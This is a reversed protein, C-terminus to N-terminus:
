KLFKLVVMTSDDLYPTEQLFDDLDDFLKDRIEAASVGSHAELSTKLRDYGYEENKSNRAETIGDTYLVIVNNKKIEREQISIIENFTQEGVIGLGIGEEESYEAKREKAGYILMPCHGARAYTLKKSKTDILLFTLTIFLNKDLCSLIANNMNVMFEKPELSLQMLAQFVGKLEAMHFAASTGKGSVDGIVVASRNEDIWFHDYYDGGVERAAKSSAAIEVNVNEPYSKPLLDQQIRRAVELEEKMRESEFRESLLGANELAVGAQKVYTRVLNIMYEDFGNKYSKLLIVSGLQDNASRIPFILLSKYIMVVNSFVAENRANHIFFYEQGSNSSSYHNLIIQNLEKVEQSTINKSKVDKITEKDVSYMWVWGAKSATNNLCTNLLIDMIEDVMIKDSVLQTLQQFSVAELQKKEMEAALPLNFILGMMSLLGYLGVFGAVLILFVNRYAYYHHFYGFEAEMLQNILLYTILNIVLLLGISILKSRMNLLIIWRQRTFLFLMGAAAIGYYSYVISEHVHLDLYNFVPALSLMWIVVRWVLITAKDKKVYVLKKFFILGFFLYLVTFYYSVLYFITSEVMTTMFSVGLFQFITPLSNILFVFVGPVAIYALVLEINYIEKREFLGRIFFLHGVYFLFLCTGKWFISLAFKFNSAPYFGFVVDLALFTFCIFGVLFTFHFYRM